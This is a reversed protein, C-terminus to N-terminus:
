RERKLEEVTKRLKEQEAMLREIIRNQADLKEQMLKIRKDADLAYEALASAADLSAANFDQQFRTTVMNLKKFTKKVFALRTHPPMLVTVDRNARMRSVADEHENMSRVYNRTQKPRAAPVNKSVGSWKERRIAEAIQATLAEDRNVSFDIGRGIGSLISDRLASEM